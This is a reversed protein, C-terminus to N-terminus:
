RRTRGGEGIVPQDAKAAARQVAPPASVAAPRPFKILPPCGFLFGMDPAEPQDPVRGGLRVIAMPRGLVDAVALPDKGPGVEFWGQGKDIQRVPTARAPDELYVVRTVFKGALALHVDDRTLEIIIPFRTEQGRPPYLRNIVEITPFVEAGERLPINVVSFRYVQGVLMGVRLPVPQPATFRGEEALSILAGESARIEVPQFYGALPGGRQLQQSGIAGPPLGPPYMFHVSPEQARIPWAALGLIAVLMVQRAVPAWCIHKNSVPCRLPKLM